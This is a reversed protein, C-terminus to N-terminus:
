SESLAKTSALTSLSVLSESLFVLLPRLYFQLGAGCFLGGAPSINGEAIATHLYPM